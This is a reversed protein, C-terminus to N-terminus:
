AAPNTAQAQDFAQLATEITTFHIDVIDNLDPAYGGSLTIVFPIQRAIFTDFVLQDRKKLGAKTLSLRGLRDKEYPDAGALYIVLEPTFRALVQDLGSQLAQLYGEDGTDNPLGIDLNSAEKRFPFNKQGHISFTFM